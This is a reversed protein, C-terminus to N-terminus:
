CFPYVYMQVWYMDVWGFGANSGLDVVKMMAESSFYKWVQSSNRGVKHTPTTTQMFNSELADLVFVCQANRLSLVISLGQHLWLGSPFPWMVMNTPYTTTYYIRLVVVIHMFARELCLRCIVLPKLHLYTFGWRLGELAM